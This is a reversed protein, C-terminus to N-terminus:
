QDFALHPNPALISVIELGLLLMVSSSTMRGQAPSTIIWKFPLHRGHPIHCVKSMVGPTINIVPSPMSHTKIDMFEV